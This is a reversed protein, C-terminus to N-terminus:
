RANTRLYGLIAAREGDDLAPHGRERMREEMVAVLVQWDRYAHRRPHPVAHCAACRSIYVQAEPTTAGPLRAVPDGATTTCASSALAVALM